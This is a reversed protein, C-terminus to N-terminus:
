SVTIYLTARATTGGSTRAYVLKARALPINTFNALANVYTNGNPAIDALSLKGNEAATSRIYPAREDGAFYLRWAGVPTDVPPAADSGGDIVCHISLSGRDEIAFAIPDSLSQYLGGAGLTFPGIKMSRKAM